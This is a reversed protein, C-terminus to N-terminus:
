WGGDDTAGDDGTDGTEIEAGADDAAVDTGGDEADSDAVNKTPRANEGDCAVASSVLCALMVPIRM